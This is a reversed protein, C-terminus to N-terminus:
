QALCGKAEAATMIALPPLHRLCSSPQLLQKVVTDKFDRATKMDNLLSM